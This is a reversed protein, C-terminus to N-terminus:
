YHLRRQLLRRLPLDRYPGPQDRWRIDAFLTVGGRHGRETKSPESKSRVFDCRADLGLVLSVMRLLQGTAVMKMFM